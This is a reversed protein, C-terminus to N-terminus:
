DRAFRNLPVCNRSRQSACPSTAILARLSNTCLYRGSDIVLYEKVFIYSLSSSCHLTFLSHVPATYLSCLTFQLLTSHVFLSSSCHLTFLSHVPATCLSCLTFQLLTSHFFEGLTQYPLVYNFVPGRLRSDSTTAM